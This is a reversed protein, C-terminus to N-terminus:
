RLLSGGGCRLLLKKYEMSRQEPCETVAVQFEEPPKYEHYAIYHCISEPAVYIVDNHPVFVNNVSFSSFRYEGFTSATHLGPQCLECQLGGMFAFPPRWASAVLECLRTFVDKSVQGTPFPEAASLWGVSRLSSPDDVEFYTCVSLDAFHTVIYVNLPLCSPIEAAGCGVTESRGPAQAPPGLTGCHPVM